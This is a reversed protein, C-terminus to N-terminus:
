ILCSMLKEILEYLGVTNNNNYGVWFVKVLEFIFVQQQRDFCGLNFFSDEPSFHLHYKFVTFEKPQLLIEIMVDCIKITSRWRHQIASCVRYRFHSLYCSFSTTLSCTMLFRQRAWYSTRVTAWKIVHCAMDTCTMLLQGCLGISGHIGGTIQQFFCPHYPWIAPELDGARTSETDSYTSVYVTYVHSSMDVCLVQFSLSKIKLCRFVVFLHVIASSSLFGNPYM